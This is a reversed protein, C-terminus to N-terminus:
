GSDGVVVVQSSLWPERAVLPSLVKAGEIHERRNRLRFPLRICCMLSGVFVMISPRDTAVTRPVMAAHSGGMAAKNVM